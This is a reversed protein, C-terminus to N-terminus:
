KEWFEFYCAVPLCLTSGPRLAARFSYRCRWEVLSKTTGHSSRGSRAALPGRAYRIILRSFDRM